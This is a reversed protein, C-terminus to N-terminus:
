VGQGTVVTRITYFLIKVDVSVSINSLYVLDYRMREIMQSVTSAYGFKVMGWSTIGPRIQHLLTYIPAKEVIQEVFYAREPRPGVLSMEGCLVNWFNPLEDLRYKRMFRGMRTVRTDHDSSLAPGASEADVRMSRLKRIKFPRRYRGMREQSYFAPGPSDLKIAVALAAIVPSTLILAVSSFLMDCFRKMAVTFDSVMAGSLNILPEGAINEFRTRSMMAAYHDTTVLIPLDLPYLRNLLKMSLVTDSGNMVIIVGTAGTESVARGIDDIHFVPQQASSNREKKCVVYGVPIYGMPKKMSALRTDLEVAKDIDGVILVPQSWRRSHIMSAAHSTIIIRGTYVFLFLAAFFLLMVEYPYGEGGAIDNLLAGFFFILTGIFTTILTNLFEDARSRHIPSVYYGSVAFVLLFVPPFLGLSLWVGRSSLFSAESGYVSWIEPILHFRVIEFALVAVLTSLYDAGVYKLRQLATSIM